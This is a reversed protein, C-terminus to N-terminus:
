PASSSRLLREAEPLVKTELLELYLDIVALVNQGAYPGSDWTWKSAVIKVDVAARGPKGAGDLVPVLRGQIDHKASAPPNTQRLTSTRLGMLNRAHPQLLPEWWGKSGASGIEADVTTGVAMLLGVAARFRYLFDDQRKRSEADVGISLGSATWVAATDVTEACWAELEDRARRAHALARYARELM